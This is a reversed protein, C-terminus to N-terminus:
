FGIIKIGASVPYVVPGKNNQFLTTFGYTAFLQLHGYGVQVLASAQFPNVNFDTKDKEKKKNGNTEYVYKMKSQINYGFLGGVAFHFSKKAEQGTNFELLLPVTIFVTKFRNKAYSQLSDAVGYTYYRNYETTTDNVYIGGEPTLRVNNKLEYNNFQFGLGTQIGINHHYLKIFKEYVNLNVQWSHRYDLEMFATLQKANSVTQANNLDFSNSSNLLGNIGLEMGAWHNYRKKPEDPVSDENNTILSDNSQAQKQILIIKTNKLNIFTSDSKSDEQAMLLSSILSFTVVAIKKM